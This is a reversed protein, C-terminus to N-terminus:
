WHVCMWWWLSRVKRLLDTSLPGTPFSPYPSAMHCCNWSAVNALLCTESINIYLCGSYTDSILRCKRYDALIVSRTDVTTYQLINSQRNFCNHIILWLTVKIIRIHSFTQIIAMIYKKHTLAKKPNIKLLWKSWYINSCLQQMGWALTCCKDLGTRAITIKSTNTCSHKSTCEHSSAYLVCSFIFVNSTSIKFMRENQSKERHKSNKEGQPSMLVHSFTCDGFLLLCKTCLVFM